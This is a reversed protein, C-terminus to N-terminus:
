PRSEGAAPRDPDIVCDGSAIWGGIEWETLTRRRRSVCGTHDIEEAVVEVTRDEADVATVRATYPREDTPPRLWVTSGERVTPADPADLTLTDTM